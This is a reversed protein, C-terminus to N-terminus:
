YNVTGPAWTQLCQKENLSYTRKAEEMVAQERLDQFPLGPSQGQQVLPPIRLASMRAKNMPSGREGRRRCPEEDGGGGRQSGSELERKRANAAQESLMEPNSALM